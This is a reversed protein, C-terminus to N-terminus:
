HVVFTAVEYVAAFVFVIAALDLFFRKAPGPSLARRGVSIILLYQVSLFVGGVVGVVVLFDNLGLAILAPPVFLIIARSVLRSWGLDKELSNRIERSIPIYVTGIAILGMISIMERKWLPWLALGSATDSTIFPASGLIGMSFMAYLLAAFLTGSALTKWPLATWAARAGDRAGSGDEEDDKRTRAEYVSEISTWGALSFLVAGFPLFFNRWNVAPISALFSVSSFMHPLATVFMFIVVAATICIGMLELERAYHGSLFVPVSILAWFAIFAIIPPVAPFALMVFQTGLLLYALLTLLLGLVIAVFGVWFGGPGFYMRALGLLRKKEGTKELTELYVGHALIVFGALAAIYFLGVLWGARLFVYPLAFAGDGVTAAAVLAAIEFGQAKKM